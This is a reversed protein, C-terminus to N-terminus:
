NTKKRLGELIHDVMNDALSHAENIRCNVWEKYPGDPFLRLRHGLSWTVWVHPSFRDVDWYKRM